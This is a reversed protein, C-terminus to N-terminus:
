PPWSPSQLFDPHGASWPRTGRGFVVAAAAMGVVATPGDRRSPDHLGAPYPPLMAGWPRLSGGLAGERSPALDAKARPPPLRPRRHRARRLRTTARPAARTRPSSPTRREHTTARRPGARPLRHQRWTRSLAGLGLRSRGATRHGCHAPEHPHARDHSQPQGEAVRGIPRRHRWRLRGIRRGGERLSVGSSLHDVRRDDAVTPSPVPLSELQVGAESM